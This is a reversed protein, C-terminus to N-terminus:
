RAILNEKNGSTKAHFQRLKSKIEAVTMTCQQNAMMLDVIIYM